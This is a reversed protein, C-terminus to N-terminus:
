PSVDFEYVTQSINSYEAENLMCIVDNIRNEIEQYSEVM